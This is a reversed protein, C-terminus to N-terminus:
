LFGSLLFEPWSLLRGNHIMTGRVGAGGLRRRSGFDMDMSVQFIIEGNGAWKECTLGWISKDGVFYVFYLQAILEVWVPIRSLSPFLVSADGTSASLRKNQRSQCCTRGKCSKAAVTLRYKISFFYSVGLTPPLPLPVSRSVPRSRRRRM